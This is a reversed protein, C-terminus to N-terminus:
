LSYIRMPGETTQINTQKKYNLISFHKSSYLIWLQYRIELFTHHEIFSQVSRYKMNFFMSPPWNTHLHMAQSYM